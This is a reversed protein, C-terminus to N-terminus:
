INFQKELYSILEKADEKSLSFYLYDTSHDDHDIVITVENDYDDGVNKVEISNDNQPDYIKITAM